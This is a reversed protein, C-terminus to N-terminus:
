ESAVVSRTPWQDRDIVPEGEDCARQRHEVLVLRDPAVLRARVRRGCDGLGRDLSTETLVDGEVDVHAVETTSALTGQEDVVPLAVSSVAGHADVLVLRASPQYAAQFCVVHVLWGGGELFPWARSAPPEVAGYTAIEKTEGREDCITSREADARAIADESTTVSAARPEHTITSQTSSTCASLTLGAITLAAMSTHIAKL